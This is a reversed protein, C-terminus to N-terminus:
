CAYHRPTFQDDVWVGIRGFDNAYRLRAFVKQDGQLYRAANERRAMRFEHRDYLVAINRM